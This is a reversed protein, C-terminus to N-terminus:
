HKLLSGRVSSDTRSASGGTANGSGQGYGGSYTQVAPANSNGNSRGASPTIGRPAGAAVGHGTGPNLMKGMMRNTSSADPLNGRPAMGRAPINTDRGFGSKPLPLGGGPATRYGRNSGIPLGGAPITSGPGGGLAGAGSGGYGGGSGTPGPPLDITGPAQEAERFDRVIPRDDIIQVERPSQYFTAKELANKNIRQQAMAPSAAVSSILITLAAMFVKNNAYM